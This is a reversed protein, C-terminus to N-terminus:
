QQALINNAWKKFTSKTLRIYGLDLGIHQASILFEWPKRNYRFAVVPHWGSHNKRKATVVQVWAGQLDLNEVRKVEFVFPTVGIIDAGGSRVQELNREPNIEQEIINLNNVIWKCFEREGAAGKARSNIRGM